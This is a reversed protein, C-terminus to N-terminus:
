HLAFSRVFWALFDLGAQGSREPHFQCALVNEKKVLSAFEGFYDTAGLLSDDDSPRCVFSHTFYFFPDKGEWPPEFKHRRECRLSVQNWGVHPVKMAPDERQLQVVDGELLGLGKHSGFEESREFLVQMGVCIGLYPMGKRIARVLGEEFGENRLFEMLAGFSGVGPFIVGQAREIESPAKAIFYAAGIRELANMLSKINGRGSHILAFSPESAM